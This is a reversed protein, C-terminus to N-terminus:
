ATALPWISDLSYKPGKIWILFKSFNKAHLAYNIYLRTENLRNSIVKAGWLFKICATWCLYLLWNSYGVTHHVPWSSFYVKAACFFRTACRASEIWDSRIYTMIFTMAQKPFHCSSILMFGADVLKSLFRTTNFHWTYQSFIHTIFIPHNLAAPRDIASSVIIWQDGRIHLGCLPVSKLVM